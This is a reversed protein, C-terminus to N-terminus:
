VNAFMASSLESVKALAETPIKAPWDVHTKFEVDKESESVTEM